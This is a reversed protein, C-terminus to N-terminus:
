NPHSPDTLQPLLQEQPQPETGIRSNDKHYRGPAEYIFIMDGVFAAKPFRSYILARTQQELLTFDDRDEGYNTTLRATVLMYKEKSNTMSDYIKIEATLYQGLSDTLLKKLSASEPRNYSSEVASINGPRSTSGHSEMQTTLLVLGYSLAIPLILQVLNLRYPVPSPRFRVLRTGAIWDGLRRETNIMAIIGEIPWLVVTINRVFCRFPSAPLRSSNTVVQLNLTRKALSRGDFNDKCFYLSFGFLAIYGPIGSWLETPVRGRPLTVAEAFSSIFAPLGYVAAVLCMLFHDLLM